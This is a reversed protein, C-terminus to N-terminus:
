IWRRKPLKVESKKRTAIILAEKFREHWMQAEEYFGKIYCYESATGLALCKDSVKGYFLNNTTDKTVLGPIVSYDIEVYINDYDLRIADDILKYRITKGNVLMVRYIDHPTSSFDSLSIEHGIIPLKERKMVPIYDTAIESITLNLCSLLINFEDTTESTVNDSDEFIPGFDESLNLLLSATKLVNKANM